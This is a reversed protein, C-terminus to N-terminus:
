FYCCRSGVEVKRTPPTRAFTQILRSRRCRAVILFFLDRLLSDNYIELFAVRLLYISHPDREMRAFVAAIALSTLASM